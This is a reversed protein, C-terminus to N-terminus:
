LERAVQAKTANLESKLGQITQLFEGRDLWVDAPRWQAPDGKWQDKPTWGREM